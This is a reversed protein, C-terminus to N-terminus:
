QSIFKQYQMEEKGTSALYWKDDRGKTKTKIVVVQAAGDPIGIEEKLFAPAHLSYSFIQRRLEEPLKPGYSLGAGYVNRRNYSGKLKGYVEPTITISSWYEGKKTHIEFTSAFTELGNVDSFVKTYPAMALSAGFGKLVKINFWGGLFQTMGLILIVIALLNAGRIFM